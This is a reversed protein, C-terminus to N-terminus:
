LEVKTTVLIGHRTNAYLVHHKPLSAVTERILKSNLWGIGGIRKLNAEDNDSWFFLHTAQDYCALPVYFPRQVSSVLSVGISRGQQLVKKFHYAIPKRRSTRDGSFTECMFSLEDAFICWRKQRFIRHLAEDFIVANRDDDDLDGCKPWLLLRQEGPNRKDVPRPDWRGVKRYGQERILRDLTKDAPKTGFVGVYKRRPLLSLALTTKGTGTPGVLTVHEGQSWRLGSQFRQWPVHPVETRQPTNTPM